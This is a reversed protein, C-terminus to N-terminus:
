KFLSNQNFPQTKFELFYRPLVAWIPCFFFRHWFNGPPSFFVLSLQNERFHLFRSLFNIFIPKAFNHIPCCCPKKREPFSCSINKKAQRLGWFLFVLLFSFFFIGEQLYKRVGWFLIPCWFFNRWIMTEFFRILFNLTRSLKKKLRLKTLLPETFLDYFDKARFFIFSYSGMSTASNEWKPCCLSFHGLNPPPMALHSLFSFPFIEQQVIRWIPPLSFALLSSLSNNLQM